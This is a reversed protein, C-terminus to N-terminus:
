LLNSKAPIMDATGANRPRSHMPCNVPPPGSRRRPAGAKRLFAQLKAFLHEVSNLDPNNPPLYLLTAGVARIAEEVGAVKHTAFNDLV